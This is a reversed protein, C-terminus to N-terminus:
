LPDKFLTGFNGSLSEIRIEGYHDVNREIYFNGEVWTYHLRDHIFESEVHTIEFYSRLPNYPDLETDFIIDTGEEEAFHVYFRGRDQFRYVGKDPIIYDLAGVLDGAAPDNYFRNNDRFSLAVLPATQHSFIAEVGVFYNGRPPNYLFNYDYHKHSERYIHNQVEDYDGNPSVIEYNLYSNLGEYYRENNNYYPDDKCSFFATAIFFLILIYRKM